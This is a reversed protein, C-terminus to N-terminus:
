WAIITERETRMGDSGLLVATQCKVKVYRDPIHFDVVVLRVRNEEPVSWVKGEVTKSNPTGISLNSGEASIGVDEIGTGQILDASSANESLQEFWREIAEAVTQPAKRMSEAHGREGIEEKTRHPSPYASRSKEAISGSAIRTSVNLPALFSPLGEECSMVWKGIRASLMGDWMGEQRPSTWLLEIAERRVVSDRCKTATFHLPLVIGVDFIFRPTQTTTQAILRACTQVIYQFDLLFADYVMESDSTVVALMIITCRYYLSVVLAAPDTVTNEPTLAAGLIPEFANKFAALENMHSKYQSAIYERSDAIQPTYARNFLTRRCFQLARDMLFDWCSYASEFNSFTTVIPLHYVKHIDWILPPTGPVTGFFLAQGDLRVITRIITEEITLDYHLTPPTLDPTVPPSKGSAPRAETQPAYSPSLVLSPNQPAPTSIESITPLPSFHTELTSFIQSPQPSHKSLLDNFDSNSQSTDRAGHSSQENGARYSANSRGQSRYQKKELSKVTVRRLPISQHQEHQNLLTNNSEDALPPEITPQLSNEDELYDEIHSLISTEKLMPDRGMHDRLAQTIYGSKQVKSDKPLVQKPLWPQSGPQGAYYSRLIKLGGYTQQVASSYSGSITEFCVFLLCAILTPRLQPSNWQSIYQSLSQIAKIYQLVAYEHHKNDFSQIINVKLESTPATELAKYLAAIAIVARRIAPVAHSEQLVIGTWFTSNFYGSM